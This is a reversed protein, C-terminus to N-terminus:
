MVEFLEFSYLFLLLVFVFMKMVEFLEFSYLFLLLVFVFMMVEFLEFSYLFLLLVCCYLICKKLFVPTWLVISTGCVCGCSCYICFSPFLRVVWVFVLLVEFCM